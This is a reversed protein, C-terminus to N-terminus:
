MSEEPTSFSFVNTMSSSYDNQSVVRYYYTVGDVLDELVTSYAQNVSDESPSNITDSSTDLDSMNRGYMVFYTELTITVESIVWTVNVSTLTINQM